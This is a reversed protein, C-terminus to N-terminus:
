AQYQRRRLVQNILLLVLLNLLLIIHLVLLHSVRLCILQSTQHSIRRNLQRNELLYVLQNVLLDIPHDVSRNPLLRNLQSIQHIPQRNALLNFLHLKLQDRPLNEKLNIQLNTQQNM